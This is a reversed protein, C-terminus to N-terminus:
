KAKNLEGFRNIIGELGGVRRRGNPIEKSVSDQAINIVDYPNRAEHMKRLINRDDGSLAANIITSAGVTYNEVRITYAWIFIKNIVADLVNERDETGFRDLYYLLTLKLLGRVRKDGTRNAGAYGYITDFTAKVDSYKERLDESTKFNSDKEDHRKFLMMWEFLRNYHAIMDFFHRGNIIQDDFNYPYEVKKDQKITPDANLMDVYIRARLELLYFPYWSKEDGCDVGKFVDIDNQTFEDAWRGGPWMKARYLYKFLNHRRKGLQEWDQIRKLDADTREPIARLHFAKLLDEPELAKGRANQSDFFQFAESLDKIVVVSLQCKTMIFDFINKSISGKREDITKINRALNDISYKNTYEVKKLFGMVKEEYGNIGLNKGAICIILSLTTVRQQGDVINFVGNNDEHLVLTGLRYQEVKKEATAFHIIDNILQNVNRAKWKYPRQYEPIRLQEFPLDKTALVGLGVENKAKVTQVIQDFISM